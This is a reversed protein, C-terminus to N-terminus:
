RIQAWRELVAIQNRKDARVSSQTATAETTVVAAIERVRFRILNNQRKVGLDGYHNGELPPLSHPQRGLVFQYVIHHNICVLANYMFAVLSLGRAFRTCVSEKIVQSQARRLISM